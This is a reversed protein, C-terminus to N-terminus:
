PIRVCAEHNTDIKLQLKVGPRVFDSYYFREPQLVEGDFSKNPKILEFVKPSTCARLFLKQHQFDAVAGSVQQIDVLTVLKQNFGNQYIRLRFVSSGSMSRAEVFEEEDLPEIYAEKIYNSLKKNLNEIDVLWQLRKGNDPNEKLKTLMLVTKDITKSINPTDPLKMYGPNIFKSWFMLSDVALKGTRFALLKIQPNNINFSFMTWWTLRPKKRSVVSDIKNLVSLSKSKTSGSDLVSWSEFAGPMKNVGSTEKQVINGM